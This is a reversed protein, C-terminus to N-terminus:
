VLWWIVLLNIMALAGLALLRPHQEYHSPLVHLDGGEYGRAALARQLNRSRLFAEIFLHTAIWAANQMRRLPPASFGLRSEQARVMRELSELLVFIFRYMLTMLDIIIGPAHLRRLLEIVDVMPTTLALFNMAAAAGLARLILNAGQYLSAPTTTVWVPGLQVAWGEDLMPQALSFSLIVAVTALLLFAGETLLLGGFTRWPIHALGVALTMMWLSAFLGVLPENLALCLLIVGLALGGKILPDVQRLANSYAYRDILHM